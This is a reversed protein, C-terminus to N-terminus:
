SARGVYCISLVTPLNLGCSVVKLVVLLALWKESTHVVIKLWPLCPEKEGWKKRRVCFTELSQFPVLGEWSFYNALIYV